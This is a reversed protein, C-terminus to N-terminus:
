VTVRGPSRLSSTLGCNVKAEKFCKGVPGGPGVSEEDGEGGGQDKGTGGSSQDPRQTEGEDMRVGQAGGRAGSEIGDVLGSM